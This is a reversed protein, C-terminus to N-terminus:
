KAPVNMGMNQGGDDTTWGGTERGETRERLGHLGGSASLDAYDTSRQDRGETRRKRGERGLQVPDGELRGQLEPLHYM